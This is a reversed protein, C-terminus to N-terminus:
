LHWAQKTVAPLYPRLKNESPEGPLVRKLAQKRLCPLLSPCRCPQHPPVGVESAAQFLPEFSYVPLVAEVCHLSAKHIDLSTLASAKAQGQKGRREGAQAAAPGAAAAASSAAAPPGAAAGDGGADPAAASSGVAAGASVRQAEELVRM